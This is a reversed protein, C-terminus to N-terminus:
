KQANSERAYQDNEKSSVKIVLRDLLSTPLLRKALAMFWTAKTVYYRAKPNHSELAHILAEVVAEPELTFPAPKDSQLRQLMKLYAIKHLSQKVEIWRQFQLFANRRFASKIPGPEILCVHIGSGKLELRLVDTLGELAFKMAVYAGRYRMATLGLVSSNNVIRGFGQRRMIPLVSVTLEHWGLLGNDLQYALASRSLDEVAGPIAFAGNNFLADLRGQTLKLTWNLAMAISDPSALDLQVAHLGQERLREVDSADRATAIVLWGRAHLMEAARRGIGSSCGTILISRQM